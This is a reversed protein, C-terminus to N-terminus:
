LAFGALKPADCDFPILYRCPSLAIGEARPQARRVSDYYSQNEVKMLSVFPSAFYHRINLILASQSSRAAINDMEAAVISGPLLRGGFGGLRGADSLIQRLLWRPGATTGCRCIPGTEFGAAPGRNM